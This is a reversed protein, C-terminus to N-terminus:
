YILDSESRTMGCNSLVVGGFISILYQILEKNYISDFMLLDLILASM